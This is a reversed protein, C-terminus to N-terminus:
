QLIRYLEDDENVYEDIYSISRIKHYEIYFCWALNTSVEAIEYSINRFINPTEEMFTTIEDESEFTLNYDNISLMRGDEDKIVYLPHINEKEYLFEEDNVLDSYFIIDSIPNIHESYEIISYDIDKVFIPFETVFETAQEISDFLITEDRYWLKLYCDIGDTDEKSILYYKNKSM